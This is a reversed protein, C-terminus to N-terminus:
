ATARSAAPHPEEEVADALTWQGLQPLLKALLAVGAVCLVGGSTVSFQPNSIAAVAGARADGLRPGGAVVAMNMASIRGRLGDPVALQVITGRFVASVVDAAGAIALLVLAAPLWSVLGFSAVAAGWVAIAWLVARGQRRVGAVWGSTLAGALAGFGPAAYLLGVTAAGGGFLGTGLAPFLARPMGFAMADLDALFAGQIVGRGKLYRVGELISPLGTKAGSRRTPIPRMKFVAFTAIVFSVVDVVYAGQVGAVAILVGACAPGVVSATQNLSQNLAFALVLHERDVLGTIAARRAPGDFGSLGASVASIVFIPWVAPGNSFANIALGLSALAMLSQTVLMIRRRDGSDAIAGGLLSCSVLPVLQALSILGVMLSSHTMEYVQFPVAVSTLQTGAASVLQGTWLLRFDRSRKLPTIDVFLRPRASGFM